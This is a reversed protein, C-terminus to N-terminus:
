HVVYGCHEFFADVDDASVSRLGSGIADVLDEPTRAKAARLFQKFKSWAPEIPSYDPSYPPLLLVCARARGGGRDGRTRRQCPSAAPPRPDRRRGVRRAHRPGAAHGARGCAGDLRPPARCIVPVSRSASPRRAALRDRLEALTADPQEAVLARLERDAAANVASPFGGAHPKPPAVIGGELTRRKLLKTIFSVSVGFDEAIERQSRSGEDCAAAVREV